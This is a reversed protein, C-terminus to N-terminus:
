TCHGVTHLPRRGRSSSIHFVLFVFRLECERWGPIDMACPAHRSPTHDARRMGKRGCIGPCPRAPDIISGRKDLPAKGEHRRVATSRIGRLETTYIREPTHDSVMM